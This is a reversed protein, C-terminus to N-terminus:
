LGTATNLSRNAPFFFPKRPSMQPRRAPVTRVKRAAITMTASSTAGIKTAASNAARRRLMSLLLFIEDVRAARSAGAAIAAVVADGAGEAVIAAAAM